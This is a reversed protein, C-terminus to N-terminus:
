IKKKLGNGSENVKIYLEHRSGTPREDLPYSDGHGPERILLLLM